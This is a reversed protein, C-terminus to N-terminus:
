DGSLAKNTMFNLFDSAYKNEETTLSFVKGKMEELWEKKQWNFKNKFGIGYGAQTAIVSWDNEMQRTLSFIMKTDATRNYKKQRLKLYSGKYIGLSSGNANKGDEHIRKKMLELLDFCLPRLLYEKDKLKNLKNIIRDNVQGINTNIKLSAM